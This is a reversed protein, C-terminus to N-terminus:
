QRFMYRWSLSRSKGLGLMTFSGPALISWHDKPYVIKIPAEFNTAVSVMVSQGFTKVSGFVWYIDYFFLGTLLIMGTFFTDLRLLSIANFSFSLALLNSLVWNGTWFHAASVM